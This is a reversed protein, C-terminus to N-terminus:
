WKHVRKYTQYKDMLALIEKVGEPTLPARGVVCDKDIAIFWIQPRAPSGLAMVEDVGGPQDFFTRTILTAEDDTFHFILDPWGVRLM